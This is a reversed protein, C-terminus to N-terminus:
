IIKMFNENFINRQKEKNKMNKKTREALDQGAPKLKLSWLPTNRFFTLLIGSFDM